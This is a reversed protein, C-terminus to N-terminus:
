TGHKQRTKTKINNNDDVNATTYGEDRHGFRLPVEVKVEVEKWVLPTLIWDVM